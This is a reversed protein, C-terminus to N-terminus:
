SCYQRFTFRHHGCRCLQVRGLYGAPVLELVRPDFTNVVQGFVNGQNLVTSFNGNHPNFSVNINNPV